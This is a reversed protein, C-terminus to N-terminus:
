LSFAIDCRIIRGPMPYNDIVVYQEGTINDCSLKLQTNMQQLIPVKVIVFSSILGYSPLLSERQNGGLSYRHSYYHLTTGISIDHYSYLTFLTLIEQPIYPLLTNNGQTIDQPNQLSYTYHVLLKKDFLESKVSLEIGQNIVNAINRASWTAPGTPVAIIKDEIRSTFIDLEYSLINRVVGFLGINVTSAYEPRLNRTGFNFYYMENFNPPRFDFSVSSRVNCLEFKKWSLSFLASPSFRVDSYYDGRFVAQFEWQSDWFDPMYHYRSSGSIIVRKVYSGELNEIMTGQLDAFSYKLRYQQLFTNSVIGLAAFGNIEHSNYTENIGDPGRILALPDTYHMTSSRLSFGGDVLSYDNINHEFSWSSFIDREKLRSAVQEVSGQLVAGPVGRDSVRFWSLSRIRVSSLNNNSYRLSFSSQLFDGNERRLTVNEGFQNFLFPYDGRSSSVDASCYINGIPSPVAVSTQASLERFSGIGIIGTLMTTDSIKSQIQVIGNMANGGFLASGGGRQIEINKILSLPITSLDAMGTQTMNIVIGDVAIISQSANGGRMSITKLGGLGGYNQITIGPTFALAQDIQRMPITTLIEQPVTSHPTSNEGVSLFTRSTTVVVTDTRRTATSDGYIEAQMVYAAFLFGIVFTVTTV